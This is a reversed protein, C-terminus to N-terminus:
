KHKLEGVIGRLIQGFLSGWTGIAPGQIFSLNLSVKQSWIDWKVFNLELASPHVKSSHWDTATQLWPPPRGGSFPLDNSSQRSFYQLVFHNLIFQCWTILVQLLKYLLSSFHPVDFFSGLFVAYSLSWFDIFQKSAIIFLHRIQGGM